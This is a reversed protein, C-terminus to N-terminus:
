CLIKRTFNAFNKLTGKQLVAFSRFKTLFFSWCLHKGNLIASSKLVAKKISCRQYSDRFKKYFKSFIATLFIM